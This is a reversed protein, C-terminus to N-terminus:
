ICGEAFLCTCFVYKVFDMGDMSHEKVGNAGMDMDMGVSEYSVGSDRGLPRSLAGVELCSFGRFVLLMGGVVCM